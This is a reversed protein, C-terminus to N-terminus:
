GGARANAVFLPKSGGEGWYSWWLKFWFLEEVDLLLVEWERGIFGDGRANSPLESARADADFEDDDNEMWEESVDTDVDDDSSAGKIDRREVMRGTSRMLALKGGLMEM